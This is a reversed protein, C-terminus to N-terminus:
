PRVEDNSRRFGFLNFLVRSAPERLSSSKKFYAGLLLQRAQAKFSIRTMLGASEAASELSKGDSDHIVRWLIQFHRDLLGEYAELGQMEKIFSDAGNVTKFFRKRGLSGLNQRVGQISVGKEGTHFSQMSLQTGREGISQAAILGAPFGVAPELGDPLLGYCKACFGGQAGCSILKLKDATNGCDAIVIEMPWLATVLRRTLAGSDKTILQKDCMSSRSNMAAYFAQGPNMGGVLPTPINFNEDPINYREEGPDLVGRAAVLQRVQKQGRAGSIAMAAVHLGSTAFVVKGDLVQGMSKEVVSQLDDDNTKDPKSQALELLDYFGFSAGIRSCCEFALNSLQWIVDPAVKPHDVALHKLLRAGEAWVLLKGSILDRCCSSPLAQLWEDGLDADKRSLWYLGLVFDQEYQPLIEGSALSLMNNSPLLGIAEKRAEASVPIHIAMEDGDFDAGFGKCALPCLQLVDGVEPPLPVPHFAQMNDRHLSPQRNLIALIGPRDKLFQRFLQHVDGLLAEKKKSRRWSWHKLFSLVPEGGGVLIEKSSRKDEAWNVLEDGLLETLVATPIGVEDWRLAPNPTIVMRASRDVRRGLGHRRILGKKGKLRGVLLRFLERVSEKIDKVAQQTKTEDNKANEFRHCAELLPGYGREVLPDQVHKNSRSSPMRYCIPLVPINEVQPLKKESIGNDDVFRQAKEKAETEGGDFFADLPYPIKTPLKIYAWRAEDDSSDDSNMDGFLSRDFLGGPIPRQQTKDFPPNAKLPTVKHNPCAVQMEGVRSRGGEKQFEAIILKGEVNKENGLTAQTYAYLPSLQKPWKPPADDEDPGIEAKLDANGPSFKIRLRGAPKDESLSCLAVHYGKDTKRLEGDITYDLSELLDELQLSLKKSQNRHAKAGIRAEDLLVFSCSKPANCSFPAWVVERFCDASKLKKDAGVRKAADSPEVFGLRIQQHDVQLDMLLAFLHDKLREGFGGLSDDQTEDTTGWLRQALISNAKRGLMEELIYEAQHGALAWIEMEGVRQGGGLIRGHAAQGTVLSYRAGAGGRRAQAKLEPVQGLRVIHQFGVVVPSCTQSGDPLLLRIRGFRDLGRKELLQQVKGHDLAGLFPQALGADPSIGGRTFDAQKCGAHLLWGIHTELLQGLNMRSIVGHPNLLVDIPRGRLDEPLSEDQPLRPMQDSPVIAGIVGKNGHRGMLKDGLGLKLDKVLEYELVGGMWKAGRRFEITKLTAPSRDLYHLKAFQDNRGELRFAAILSNGFLKGGEKGFIVPVWGPKLTKRNRERMEIDLLGDEVVHQGVVIADDVNMGYWPLYAVLLDVGLALNGGNDSADPCMGTHVLPQIFKAVAEEGGTRVAPQSRKAVPVAQLLNKAGMMCRAGDNHEYFPILGAAYGLENHPVSQNAPTIKGEWDVQAGRALQLTLGVLESEPTQVPCIRDRFSPHNQRSRAPKMGASERTMRYRRVQTLLAAMYVPNKPEVWQLPEFGNQTERTQDHEWGRPFLRAAILDQKEILRNWLDLRQQADSDKPPNNNFADEVYKVGSKLLRHIIAEALRAKLWVPFTILSRHDLDDEDTIIAEPSKSNKTALDHVKAWFEHRKDTGEKPPLVVPGQQQCVEQLFGPLLDYSPLIQPSDSFVDDREEEEDKEETLDECSEGAYNGGPLGLRWSEAKKGKEVAKWLHRFGPREGLWAAWVALRSVVSNKSRKVFVGHYPLAIELRLTDPSNKWTIALEGLLDLNAAVTKKATEASPLKLEVRFGEGFVPGLSYDLHQGAAAAWSAADEQGLWFLGPQQGAQM